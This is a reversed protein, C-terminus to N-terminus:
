DIVKLTTCHPGSDGLHEANFERDAGEAVAAVDHGRHGVGASEADEARDRVTRSPQLVLQGPDLFLGAAFGVPDVQQQRGLVDAGLLAPDVGLLSPIQQGLLVAREDVVQQGAIADPAAGLLRARRRAAPEVDRGLAVLRQEVHGEGVVDPQDGAREPRRRRVEDLTGVVVVHQYGREGAGRM